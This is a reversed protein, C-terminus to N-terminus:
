EEEERGSGGGEFGLDNVVVVAMVSDGFDGGFEGSM